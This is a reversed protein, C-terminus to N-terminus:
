HYPPNHLFNSFIALAKYKKYKSHSKFKSLVRASFCFPFSLYKTSSPPPSLFLSLPLSFLFLSYADIIDSLDSYRPRFRSIYRDTNEGLYIPLSLHLYRILHLTFLETENFFFLFFYFSFQFPLLSSRTRIMFIAFIMLFFDLHYLIPPLSENKERSRSSFIWWPVNVM